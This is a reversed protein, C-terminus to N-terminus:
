EVPLPGLAETTEQAAANAADTASLKRDAEFSESNGSPKEGGLGANKVKQEKESLERPIGKVHEKALKYLEELSKDLHKKDMSIGYMIPRYTEFDEAHARAFAAIEKKSRTDDAVSQNKKIADIEGRMAKTADETAMKLIDKKSMGEFDEDSLDTKKGGKDAGKDGGKDDKQSNLYAIYEPTFVELRSDELDVKMKANDAVIKDYEAQDVKGEDGKDNKNEENGM